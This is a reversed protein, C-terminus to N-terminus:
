EQDSTSWSVSFGDAQASITTSSSSGAVYTEDYNEYAYPDAQYRHHGGRWGMVTADMAPPISTTKRVNLVIVPAIWHTRWLEGNGRATIDTGRSVVSWEPSRGSTKSCGSPRRARCTGGTSATASESGRGPKADTSVTRSGISLPAGDYGMGHGRAQALTTTGLTGAVIIALLYSFNKM